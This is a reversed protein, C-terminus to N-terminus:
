RYREKTIYKQKPSSKPATLELAGRQILPNLVDTMFHSRSTYGIHKQIEERSRAVDSCFELISNDYKSTTVFASQISLLDFLTLVFFGSYSELKPEKDAFKEYSKYRKLDM